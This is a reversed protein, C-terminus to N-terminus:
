SVLPETQDVRERACMSGVRIVNQKLQSCKSLETKKCVLLTSRLVEAVPFKRPVVSTGLTPAKHPVQRPQILRRCRWGAPNQVVGSTAAPAPNMAFESFDGADADPLENIQTFECNNLKQVLKVKMAAVIVRFSSKSFSVPLNTEIEVKSPIKSHTPLFGTFAEQQHSLLPL